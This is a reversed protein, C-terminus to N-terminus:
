NKDFYLGKRLEMLYRKNRTQFHKDRSIDAAENLACVIRQEFSCFQEIVIYDINDQLRNPFTEFDIDNKRDYRTELMVAVIGKRHNFDGKLAEHLEWDVHPRSYTDRGLICIIVDCDEMRKNIIDKIHQHNEGNFNTSKSVAYYPIKNKKLMEEIKNRYKEDARHYSLFVKM